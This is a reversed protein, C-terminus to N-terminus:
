PHINEFRAFTQVVTSKYPKSNHHTQRYRKNLKRNRRLKNTEATICGNTTFYIIHEEVTRRERVTMNSLVTTYSPTHLHSLANILCAYKRWKNFEKKTGCSFLFYSHM